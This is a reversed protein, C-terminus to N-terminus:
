LLTKRGDKFVSFDGSSWTLNNNQVNIETKDFNWTDTRGQSFLVAAKLAKMPPLSFVQIGSTALNMVETM